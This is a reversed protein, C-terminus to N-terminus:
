SDSKSKSEENETALSSFTEENVAKELAEIATMTPAPEPTIPPRRTVSVKSKPLIIGGKKNKEKQNKRETNMTAQRRWL